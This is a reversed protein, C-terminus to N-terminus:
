YTRPKPVFITITVPKSSLQPGDDTKQVLTHKLWNTDDRDPYDDRSHAGRSEERGLASAVITEALGLLFELELAELLDTNYRMGLNDIAVTKYLEKLARVEALAQRLFTGHPIHLL